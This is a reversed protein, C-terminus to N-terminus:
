KISQVVMQYTLKQNEDDEGLDMDELFDHSKPIKNQLFCGMFGRFLHPLFCWFASYHNNDLRGELSIMYCVSIVFGVMELGSSWYFQSHADFLLKELKLALDAYELFSQVQKGSPRLM